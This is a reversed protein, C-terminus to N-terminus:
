QMFTNKWTLVECGSRHCPLCVKANRYIGFSPVPKSYVVLDSCVLSLCAECRVLRLRESKLQAVHAELASGSSSVGRHAAAFRIKCLLDSPGPAPPNRFKTQPTEAMAEHLAPLVYDMTHDLGSQASLRLANFFQRTDLGSRHTIWNRRVPQGEKVSLYLIHGPSVLVNPLSALASYNPTPLAVGSRELDYLLWWTSSIIEGLQTEVFQKAAGANQHSYDAFHKLRGPMTRKLHDFISMMQVLWLPRKSTDKTKAVDYSGMLAKLQLLVALGNRTNMRPVADDGLSVNFIPSLVAPAAPSISVASDAISESVISPISYAYVQLSGPSDYLKYKPNFEASRLLFSVMAATGAGLSHGCLRVKFGKEALANLWDLCPHLTSQLVQKAALLMGEHAFQQCGAAVPAGSPFAVSTAKSDTEADVSSATGRFLLTAVKAVPNVLLRFAPHNEAVLDADGKKQDPLSVLMHHGPFITHLYEQFSTDSTSYAAQALLAYQEIEPFIPPVGADAPVAPTPHFVPNYASDRVVLLLMALMVAPEDVSNNRKIWDPDDTQISNMLDIVGSNFLDGLFQQVLQGTVVTKAAQVALNIHDLGSVKGAINLMGLGLMLKDVHERSAPYPQVKGSSIFESMITKHLNMRETHLARVEEKTMGHHTALHFAETQAVKEGLVHATDVVKHAASSAAAKAADAAAGGLSKLFSAM